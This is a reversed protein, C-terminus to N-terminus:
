ECDRRSKGEGEKGKPPSPSLSSTRSKWKSPLTRPRLRRVYSKPNGTGSASLPCLVELRKEAEKSRHPFFTMQLTDTHRLTKNWSVLPDHSPTLVAGVADTNQM